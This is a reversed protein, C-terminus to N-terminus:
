SWAGAWKLVPCGQGSADVFRSGRVFGITLHLEEGVKTGPKFEISDVQWPTHLGFAMGFLQESNM